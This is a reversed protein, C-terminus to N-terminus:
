EGILAPQFYREVMLGHREMEAQALNAYHRNHWDQAPNESYRLLQHYPMTFLARAALIELMQPSLEPVALARKVTVHVGQMDYILRVRRPVYIALVVLIPVAATIIGLVLGLQHIGRSGAQGATILSDGSHAQLATAARKLFDTVYPVGSPVAQEFAKIWSDFTRGANIVALALVDLQLVLNDVFRGAQVSLYIAAVVLLDALMWGFRRSYVDPYVRM